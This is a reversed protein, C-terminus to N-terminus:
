SQEANLLTIFAAVLLLFMSAIGAAIAGYFMWHRSEAIVKAPDAATRKM